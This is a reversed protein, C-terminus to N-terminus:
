EEVNVFIGNFSRSSKFSTQPHGGGGGDQGHDRLSGGDFIAKTM